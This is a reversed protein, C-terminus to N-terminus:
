LPLPCVEYQQVLTDTSDFRQVKVDAVGELELYRVIESWITDHEDITRTKHLEVGDGDLATILATNM